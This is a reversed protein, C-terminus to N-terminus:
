ASKVKFAKTIEMHSKRHEEDTFRGLYAETTSIRSHGLMDKIMKVNAHAKAISAFTHRSWYTSIEPLENKTCYRKLWKNNTKIFQRIRDDKQKEDLKESNDFVSFIFSSKRKDPNGFQVIIKQLEEVLPVSIAIAEGRTRITKQRHFVIKDNHINEYRLLAIDKYNMGQAYLSFLFLQKAKYIPNEIEEVGAEGEIFKNLQEQNMAQGKSGTSTPIKYKKDRHSRSFPYVTELYEDNIAMDNFVSRLCRMYISVSTDNLEKERRLWEDFENLKQVTIDAPDIDRGNQFAKLASYASSYARATGAQGKSLLKDIHNKFFALFNRGAEQGLYEKEFSSFSFPTKGKDTARSIAEKAEHKAADIIERLDRNTKRLEKLPSTTIHNYEKESLFLKEKEPTLVPYYKPIRQHIIRIKVPHKGESNSSHVWLVPIPLIEGEKRKAM